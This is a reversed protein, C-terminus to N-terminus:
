VMPARFLHRLQLFPSGTYAVDTNMKQKCEMVIAIIALTNM